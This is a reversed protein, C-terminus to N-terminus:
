VSIWKDFKKTQQCTTAKNTSKPRYMLGLLLKRTWLSMLFKDETFLHLNKILGNYLGYNQFRPVTPQKKNVGARILILYM